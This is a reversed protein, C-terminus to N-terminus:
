DVDKEEWLVIGSNVESLFVPDIKEVDLMESMTKIVCQLKRKSRFKSVVDKVYRPEKAIILLDIDSEIYDEGKSVSGFLVVKRSLAQLKVILPKLMSIMKLVKFQRVFCDDENIRYFAFRGRKLKKVLRQKILADLARYTGAKSVKTENQIEAALLDENPHDVLYSLTYQANTALFINENNKTRM